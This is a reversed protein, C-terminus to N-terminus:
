SCRAGNLSPQDIQRQFAIEGAGIFVPRGQVLDHLELGAEGQHGARRAPRQAGAGRDDVDQARHEADDGRLGCQPLAVEGAFALADAAGQEFTGGEEHARVHGAHGGGAELGAGHGGAAAGPGDILHELGGAVALQEDADGGVLLPRAEDLFETQLFEGGVRPQGGVNHTQRFTGPQDRGQLVDQM